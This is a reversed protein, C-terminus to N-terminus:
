PVDGVQRLANRMRSDYNSDNIALLLMERVVANGDVARWLSM